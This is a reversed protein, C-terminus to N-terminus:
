VEVEFVKLKHQDPILKTNNQGLKFLEFCTCIKM